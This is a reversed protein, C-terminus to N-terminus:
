QAYFTYFTTHNNFSCLQFLKNFYIGYLSHQNCLRSNITRHSDM